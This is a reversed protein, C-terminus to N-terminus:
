KGKGCNSCFAGSNDNTTGCGSCIWFDGKRTEQNNAGTSDNAARQKQATMAMNEPANVYQHVTLNPQEQSLGLIKKKKKDFEEQTIKGSKLLENYMKLKDAEDIISSIIVTDEKLWLGVFLIAVIASVLIILRSLGYGTALASIISIVTPFEFLFMTAAPVFWIKKVIKNRKLSLFILVIVGVYALVDYIDSLLFISFFSYSILYALLHIFPLIASIIAAVMVAKKNKIVLTVSMAATSSVIGIYYLLTTFELRHGLYILNFIAYIFFCMAAILSFIRATKKM